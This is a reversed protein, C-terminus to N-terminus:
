PNEEVDMVWLDGHDEEWTFYIFKGDTDDM